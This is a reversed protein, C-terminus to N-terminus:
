KPSVLHHVADKLITFGNKTLLSEPHFQYGIFSDSRIGILENLEPIVSIEFDGIFSPVQPAFTNYFGVLEEKGFLDIRVQSGQLPHRKRRVDMGLYKCLIQHGLCIFLSPKKRNILEGAIRYNMEIKEVDLENPNGPGPGLLTIDSSDLDINYENYRVVQTDIGMCSFMHRLMFVFDDENHIITIRLQEGNNGSM